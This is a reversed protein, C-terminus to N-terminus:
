EVPTMYFEFVLQAFGLKELLTRQREERKAHSRLILYKFLATNNYRVLHVFVSHTQSLVFGNGPPPWYARFTLSTENLKERVAPYFIEEELMAHIKLEACTMRVLDEKEEADGSTLKKFKEFLKDVKRHDEALLKAADEGQSSGKGATKAM